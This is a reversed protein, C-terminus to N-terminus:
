SDIKSGENSAQFLKYRVFDLVDEQHRPDLKRFQNLLEVDREVGPTSGSGEEHFFEAISMDFIRLIKFLAELSVKYEGTEMRCLDSQQIGIKAALEAQTLKRDKRIQRIKKGVLPAPNQRVQNM